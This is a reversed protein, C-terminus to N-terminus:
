QCSMVNRSLSMVLIDEQACDNGGWRDRRKQENKGSGSLEEDTKEEALDLVKKQERM